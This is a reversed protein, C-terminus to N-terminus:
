YAFIYPPLDFSLPDELLALSPSSPETTKHMAEIRSESLIYDMVDVLLYRIKRVPALM